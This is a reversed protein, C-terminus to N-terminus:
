SQVRGQANILKGQLDKSSSKLRLYQVVVSRIMDKLKDIFPEVIKTKYTKASMLGNSEPLQWETDRDYRDVNLNILNERHEVEKLRDLTDALKKDAIKIESRLDRKQEKMASLETETQGIQENLVAIEKGRMEKEYNLVSLRKDTAGLQEWEIGHREM